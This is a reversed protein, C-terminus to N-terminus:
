MMAFASVKVYNLKKMWKVFLRHLDWEILSNVVQAKDITLRDPRIINAAM